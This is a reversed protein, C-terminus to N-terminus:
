AAFTCISKSGHLNKEHKKEIIQLINKENNAIDNNILM